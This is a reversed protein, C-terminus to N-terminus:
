VENQWDNRPWHMGDGRTTQVPFLWLLRIDGFVEKFNNGCGLDYHRVNSL